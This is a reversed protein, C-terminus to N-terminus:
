KDEPIEKATDKLLAEHNVSAEPNKSDWFLILINQKGKFM